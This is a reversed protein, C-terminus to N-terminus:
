TLRRIILLQPQQLSQQPDAVPLVSPADHILHWSEIGGGMLGDGDSQALQQVVAHLRQVAPVRQVGSDDRCPVSVQILYGASTLTLTVVMQHLLLPSYYESFPQRDDRQRQGMKLAKKQTDLYYLQALEAVSSFCLRKTIYSM